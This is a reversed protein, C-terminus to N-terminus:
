IYIQYCAIGSDSHYGFIRIGRILCFAEKFRQGLVVAHGHGVELGFRPGPTWPVPAAAGQTHRHPEKAMHSKLWIAGRRRPLPPSSTLLGFTM